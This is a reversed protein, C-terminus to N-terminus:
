APLKWLFFLPVLLNNTREIEMYFPDQM